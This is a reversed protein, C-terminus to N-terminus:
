GRIPDSGDWGEAAAAVERYLAVLPPHAEFVGWLHGLEATTDFIAFRLGGATQAMVVSKVGAAEFVACAAEYDEAVTEVSYFGPTSPLVGREDKPRLSIRLGGFQGLAGGTTFRVERGERDTGTWSAPTRLFFPGAGRAV